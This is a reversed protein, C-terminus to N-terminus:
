PQLHAHFSLGSRLSLPNGAAKNTKARSPPRSAVQAKNASEQAARDPSPPAKAQPCPRAPCPPTARRGRGEEGGAGLKTRHLRLAGQPHRAKPSRLAKSRATFHPAETQLAPIGRPTRPTRRHFPCLHGLHLDGAGFHTRGCPTRHIMLQSREGWLRHLSVPITVGRQKGSRLGLSM